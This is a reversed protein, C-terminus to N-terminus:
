AGVHVVLHIRTVYGNGVTLRPYTTATLFTEARPDWMLSTTDPAACSGVKKYGRLEWVEIHGSAINGFGGLLM